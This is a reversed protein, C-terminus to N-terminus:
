AGTSFSQDRDPRGVLGAPVVQQGAGHVVAVEGGAARAALQAQWAGVPAGGAVAGALEGVELM